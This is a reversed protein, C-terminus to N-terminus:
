GCPLIHQPNKQWMKMSTQHMSDKINGTTFTVLGIAVNKVKELHHQSYIIAWIKKNKYLSECCFNKNGNYKPILM